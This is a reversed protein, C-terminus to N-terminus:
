VFNWREDNEEDSTEDEPKIVVKERQNNNYKLIYKNEKSCHREVRGVYYQSKDDFWIQIVADIPIDHNKAKKKKEKKESEKHELKNKRKKKETLEKRVFQDIKDSKEKAHKRQKERKEREKETLDKDKKHHKIHNEKNKHKLRENESKFVLGCGTWRCIFNTEVYTKGHILRSHRKKEASSHFVYCPCIECYEIESGDCQERPKEFNDSDETMELYTKFHGEHTSKKHTFFGGRNRLRTLLVSAREPSLKTCHDCGPNLCRM